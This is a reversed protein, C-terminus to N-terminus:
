CGRPDARVFAREARLAYLVYQEVDARIATAAEHRAGYARRRLPTRPKGDGLAGRRVLAPGQAVAALVNSSM